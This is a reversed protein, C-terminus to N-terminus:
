SHKKGRLILASHKLISSISKERFSISKQQPSFDVLVDVIVQFNARM